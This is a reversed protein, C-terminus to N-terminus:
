NESGKYEHMAMIVAVTYCLYDSDVWQGARGTPRTRKGRDHGPVLADAEAGTTSLRKILSQNSPVRSLTSSAESRVSAAKSSAERTGPTSVPVADCYEGHGSGQSGM